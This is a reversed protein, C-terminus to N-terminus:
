RGGGARGITESAAVISMGTRAAMDAAAQQARVFDNGMIGTFALLTTQAETIQGASFVSANALAQGMQNLQDRNYGAAEGTSRLVAALQAQEKEMQKTNDIIKTIVAGASLAGVAGVIVGGLSSFAAKAAEAAQQADKSIEKTTAKSKRAAKDLGSDFLGTRLIMDVTLKGLSSSM